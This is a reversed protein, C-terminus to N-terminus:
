PGSIIVGPQLGPAPFTNLVGIVEVNDGHSLASAELVNGASDYIGAGSQSVSTVPYTRGAESGATINLDISNNVADVSLTGIYTKLRISWQLVRLADITDTTVDLHGFVQVQTNETIAEIGVSDTLTSNMLVTDPTVNVQVCDDLLDPDCLQFSDSQPNRLVGLQNMLVPTVKQSAADTDTPVEDVDVTADPDFEPPATPDTPDTVLSKDQRKYM